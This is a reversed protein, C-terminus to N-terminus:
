LRLRPHYKKFLEPTGMHLDTYLKVPVVFAALLAFLHVSVLTPGPVFDRAAHLMMIVSIVCFAFGCFPAFGLALWAAKGLLPMSTRRLEAIGAFVPLCALGTMVCFFSPPLPFCAAYSLFFRFCCACVVFSAIYSNFMNLLVDSNGRRTRAYREPRIGYFAAYCLPAAPFACVSFLMWFFKTWPGLSSVAIDSATYFVCFVLAVFCAFRRSDCFPYAAACLHAIAIGLALCLIGSLWAMRRNWAFMDKRM